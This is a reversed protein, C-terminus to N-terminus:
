AIDDNAALIVRPPPSTVPIHPLQEPEGISAIQEGEKVYVIRMAPNQRKGHEAVQVERRHISKAEYYSRAKTISLLMSTQIGVVTLYFVSLTMFTPTHKESYTFMSSSNILHNAALVYVILEVVIMFIYVMIAPVMHVPNERKVGIIIEWHILVGITVFIMSAVITGVDFSGGHEDWRFEFLFMVFSFVACLLGFGASVTAARTAHTFFARYEPADDDFHAVHIKTPAPREDVEDGPLGFRSYTVTSNESRRKLWGLMRDVM